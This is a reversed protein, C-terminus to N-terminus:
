MSPILEHALTACIEPLILGRSINLRSSFSNRLCWSLCSLNCPRRLEPQRRSDRNHFRSLFEAFRWLLCPAPLLTGALFVSGGLFTPPHVAYMVLNAPMALLIAPIFFALVAVNYDSEHMHLEKALGEIAAIGINTGDLSIIIALFFLVPLLHWDVKRLVANSDGEANAPFPGSRLSSPSIDKDHQAM